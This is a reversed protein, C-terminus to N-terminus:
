DQEKRMVDFRQSVNESTVGMPLLCDQAQAMTKVKTNFVSGDSAMPNATMSELGAGI